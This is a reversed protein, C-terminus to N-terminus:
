PSCDAGGLASECESSADFALVTHYIRCQLNDGEPAPEVTYFSDAESGEIDACATECALTADEDTGFESEFDSACASALLKCYSPCNEEGCHGDGSPGAHSCHVEPSILASYAHYQRCGVTDETTDDTEGLELVACADMCQSVSEYVQDGEICAVMVTRCYDECDPDEDPLAAAACPSGV